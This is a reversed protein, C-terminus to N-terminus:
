HRTGFYTFLTQCNQGSHFRRYRDLHAASALMKAELTTADIGITKGKLLGCRAVETLVFQVAQHTAEDLL